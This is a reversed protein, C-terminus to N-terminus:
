CTALEKRTVTTAIADFARVAFDPPHEYGDLASRAKAGPDNLEALDGGKVVTTAAGVLGWLAAYVDAHELKVEMPTKELVQRAVKIGDLFGLSWRKRWAAVEDERYNDLWEQAETMSLFAMAFRSRGQKKEKEKALCAWYTPRDWWRLKQRRGRRPWWSRRIVQDHELTGNIRICRSWEDYHTQKWGRFEDGSFAAWRGCPYLIRFTISFPQVERREVAFTANNITMFKIHEGGRANEGTRWFVGVMKLYRTASFLTRAPSYPSDPRSQDDEYRETLEKHSPSMPNRDFLRTYLAVGMKRGIRTDVPCLLMERRVAKFVVVAVSLVFTAIQVWAWIGAAFGQAWTTDM